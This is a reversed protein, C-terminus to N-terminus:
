VHQVIGTDKLISIASDFRFVQVVRRLRAAGSSCNYYHRFRRYPSITRIDPIIPGIEYPHIYFMCPAGRRNMARICQRTALLPYIRFYGGGGFPLRVGFIQFTSLPWEILGNALKHISPETDHIGCVDHIRIPYISSDYEFGLERLTDLAWISSRTISFEPARFGYVRGGLLQEVFAKCTYLQRQFETRTVRFIRRHEYSHLAIEHGMEAVQRVLQPLEYAIRGVFFFTAHINWDALLQLTVNTNHEIEYNERKTELYEAAIPFSEANSEAFGEVDISLCNTISAM